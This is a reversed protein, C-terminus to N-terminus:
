AYTAGGKGEKVTDSEEDHAMAVKGKGANAIKVKKSSMEVKLEEEEDNEDEHDNGNSAAVVNQLHSGGNAKGNGKKVTGAATRKSGTVPTKNAATASKNGAKPLTAPARATSKAPTNSKHPQPLPLGSSAGAAPTSADEAMSRIKAIRHTLAKPTVDTTPLILISHHELNM